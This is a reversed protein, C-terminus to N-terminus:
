ELWFEIDSPVLVVVLIRPVLFNTLRLDNYNKFKLDYSFHEGILEGSNRGKAQLELRPSAFTGDRGSGSVFLDVSDDDVTPTTASFGAVSAVAQIYAKSFQEKRQNHDVSDTGLAKGVVIDM